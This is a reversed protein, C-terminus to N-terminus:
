FSNPAAMIAGVVLVLVGIGFGFFGYPFGAWCNRFRILLIGLIFVFITVAGGVFASIGLGKMWYSM